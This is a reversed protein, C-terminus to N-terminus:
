YENSVSLGADWVSPQLTVMNPNRAIQRFNLPSRGTHAHFTRSFHPLQKFGVLSCIENVPLDSSQLLLKAVELRQRTVYGMVSTGTHLRLIRNLHTPSMSVQQAIVASTLHEHLHLKIYDHVKQVVMNAPLHGSGVQFNGDPFRSHLGDTMAPVESLLSRQLRLLLVSLQAQVIQNDIPQRRLEDGLLEIGALSRSDNVLLSYGVSYKGNLLTSIHCLTGVPLFRFKLIRTKGKHPTDRHWPVDAGTSYPVGAPLLMYSTAKLSVNYQGCSEVTGHAALMTDTVGVRLDAEGEVICCLCPHNSDLMQANAWHRGRPYDYTCNKLLLPPEPLERVSCNGSSKMGIQALLIDIPASNLLSPLLIETLVTLLEKRTLLASHM